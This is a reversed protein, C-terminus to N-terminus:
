NILSPSAEAEFDVSSNNTDKLISYGKASRSLVKRKVSRGFRSKDGDYKGCYTWGKDLSPATVIWKFESQVSLNVADVIWSNPIKFTSEEMDMRFGEFEFKYSYNYAHNQAFAQQNLPIKALVFSQYGRNHIVLKDLFNIMNTVKPNDVDEDDDPDLMEFDANALNLGKSNYEKHNIATEAIIISGGPQIPYEKGSGPIMMIANVAVAEPMINPKYEYREVTSFTTGAIALGDAYLVNDSNNYIKIYRDGLYLENEPTNNGAFFIEEILFGGDTRSLFLSFAVDLKGEVIQRREVYATIPSEKLEGDLYYSASGNIQIDYLGSLLKMTFTAQNSSAKTELGTNIEKAVVNIEKLKFESLDKPYEAQLQVTLLSDVPEDKKCGILFLASLALLLLTINTIRM